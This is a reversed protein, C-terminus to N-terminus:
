KKEQMSKKFFDKRNRMKAYLESPAFGSLEVIAMPHKLLRQMTDHKPMLDEAMATIFECWLAQLTEKDPNEQFEAFPVPRPRLKNM